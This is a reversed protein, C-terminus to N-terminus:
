EGAARENKRIVQFGAANWVAEAAPSQLHEYLKRARPTAEGHKLLVLVYVIEGHLSPAFEHIIEVDAHQADTAYVVGAEAEGREVFLLASRVDHARAFKGSEHLADFLNLKKLAQDGYKGAPVNEGAVAIKKVSPSLLDEPARVGAPNGKPAILVLRNTLLEVSEAALGATEIQEAFERHASLFLDVPAGELIQSALGSSPGPNIKAATGERRDFDSAIAELVDKTSAAASIRIVTPTDITANSPTHGCGEAICVFLLLALIQLSRCAKLM